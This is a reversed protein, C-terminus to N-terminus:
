RVGSGCLITHITRLIIKIELVLSAQKVYENDFQVKVRTEEVNAAYGYNVQAWGTIGPRVKHRDDFNAILARYEKVLEPQEPRPGILSMDGILVNYLQPLEDIRFRRLFKGLATIRPDDNSTARASSGQSHRMTRLKLMPFLRGGLGVRQQIFFVPRGSEALIAASAVLVLILAAPALLIVAAIDFIRKGAFFVGSPGAATPNQAAPHMVVRDSVSAQSAHIRESVFRRKTIM